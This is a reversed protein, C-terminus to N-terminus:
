RRSLEVFRFETVWWRKSNPDVDGVAAVIESTGDGDLENVTFAGIQKYAPAEFLVQPTGFEPKGPVGENSLWYLSWSHPPCKQYGTRGHGSHLAFKGNLWRHKKMNVLLDLDGDNDWDAVEVWDVVM